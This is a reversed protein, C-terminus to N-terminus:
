AALAGAKASWGFRTSAAHADPRCPAISYGAEAAREPDHTSIMLAAGTHRVVHVLLDLIEDAQTPHVSATPEDALVLKPRHVLARAVAARQRQGVSVQGPRRDLIDDIRLWEALRDAFIPDPRGIIQQPLLINDRLSLFPLLAATQPVFGVARARLRALGDADGKRWLALADQGTLVLRSGPTIHPDPALALALLGLLTSKGCGSPGVVAVFAGAQLSLDEVTLTFRSAGASFSRSLGRVALLTPSAAAPRSQTM